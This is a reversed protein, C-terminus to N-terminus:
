MVCEGSLDRPKRLTSRLTNAYRLLDRHLKPRLREPSPISKMFLFKFVALVKRVPPPSPSMALLWLFFGFQHKKFIGFTPIQRARSDLVCEQGSHPVFM